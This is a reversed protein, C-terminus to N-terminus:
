QKRGQTLATNVVTFLSGNPLMQLPRGSRPFCQFAQKGAFLWRTDHVIRTNAGSEVKRTRTSLEHTHQILLDREEFSM